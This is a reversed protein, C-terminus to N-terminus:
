SGCSDIYTGTGSNTINHLLITRKSNQHTNILSMLLRWIPMFIKQPPLSLLFSRNILRPLWISLATFCVQFTSNMIFRVVSKCLLIMSRVVFFWIGVVYFYVVLVFKLWADVVQYVAGLTGFDSQRVWSRGRLKRWVWIRPRCRLWIQLPCISWPLFALVARKLWDLSQILAFVLLHLLLPRWLDHPTRRPTGWSPYSM